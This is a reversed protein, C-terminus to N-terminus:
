RELRACTAPPKVGQRSAPPDQHHSERDRGQWNKEPTARLLVYAKDGGGKQPEPYYPKYFHM